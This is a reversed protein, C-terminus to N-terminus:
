EKKHPPHWGRKDFHRVWWYRETISERDGLRVGMMWIGAGIFVGWVAGANFTDPLLAAVLLDAVSLVIVLAGLGMLVNGTFLARHYKM